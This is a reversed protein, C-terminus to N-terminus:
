RCCRIDVGDRAGTLVTRGGGRSLVTSNPDTAVDSAEHMIKAGSWDEPFPTKGPAGPWMHGGGTADGNLIHETRGPSAVNVYDPVTDAAVGTASAQRLQPPGRVGVGAQAATAHPGVTLISMLPQPGVVNQASAPGAGSVILALSALLAVLVALLRRSLGSAKGLRESDGNTV